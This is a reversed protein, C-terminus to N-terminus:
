VISVADLLQYIPTPSSTHPRRESQLENGKLVNALGWGLQAVQGKGGQGEAQKVSLFQHSRVDVSALHNVHNCEAIRKRTDEPIDDLDEAENM